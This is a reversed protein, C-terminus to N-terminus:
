LGFILKINLKWLIILFDKRKLFIFDNVLDEYWIIYFIYFIFCVFNFCVWKIIDGFNKFLDKLFKMWLKDEFM